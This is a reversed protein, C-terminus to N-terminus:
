GRNELRTRQGVGRVLEPFLRDRDVQECGEEKAFRERGLGVGSVNDVQGICGGVSRTWVIKGVRHCFIRQDGEGPGQGSRQRRADPHIRDRGACDKRRGPLPLIIEVPEDRADGEAPM